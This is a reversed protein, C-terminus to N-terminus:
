KSDAAKHAEVDILPEGASAMRRINDADGSTEAIAVPASLNNMIGELHAIRQLVEDPVAPKRGEVAVLREAMADVCSALATVRGDLEAAAAGDGMVEPSPVCCEGEMYGDESPLFRISPVFRTDWNDVFVMLNVRPGDELVRTIIAPSAPLIPQGEEAPQSYLVFMGVRPKLQSM